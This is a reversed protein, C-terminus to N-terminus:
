AVTQKTPKKMGYKLKYSIIFFIEVLVLVCAIIAILTAVDFAGSAFVVIFFSMTITQSLIFLSFTALSIDNADKTKVLKKIQPVWSYVAISSAIVVLAISVGEPFVYNKTVEVTSYTIAFAVFVLMVLSLILVILKKGKFLYFIIPLMLIGICVNSLWPSFQHKVAGYFIWALSCFYVTLFSSKSLSEASKKKVVGVVQPIFIISALAAGFYTLIDKVLDM